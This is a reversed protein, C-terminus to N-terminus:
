AAIREDVVKLNERNQWWDRVRQKAAPISSNGQRLLNLEKIVSIKFSKGGIRLIGEMDGEGLSPMSSSETTSHPLARLYVPSEIVSQGDTTRLKRTGDKIYGQNKSLGTIDYYGTGFNYPSEGNFRQDYFGDALEVQKTQKDLREDLSHQEFLQRLEVSVAQNQNPIIPRGTQGDKGPINELPRWKGTDPNKPELLLTSGDRYTIELVSNELEYRTLEQGIQYPRFLAMKDGELHKPRYMTQMDASAVYVAAHQGRLEYRLIEAIEVGTIRNFNEQDSNELCAAAAKIKKEIRMKQQTAVLAGLSLMAERCDGIGWILAASLNTISRRDRRKGPAIGSLAIHANSLNDFALHSPDELDQLQDVGFCTRVFEELRDKLIKPDQEEALGLQEIIIRFNAEDQRNVMIDPMRGGTRGIGGPIYQPTVSGLLAFFNISSKKYAEEDSAPPAQLIAAYEPNLASPKEGGSGLRDRGQRFEEVAAEMNKIALETEPETLGTLSYREEFQHKIRTLRELTTDMKFLADATKFAKALIPKIDQLKQGNMFALELQGAHNWYDPSEEKGEKQLAIDALIKQNEILQDLKALENELEGIQRPNEGSLNKQFELRQSLLQNRKELTRIAWELSPFSSGSEKLGEFYSTTAKANEQEQKKRLELATGLPGEEIMLTNEFNENKLENIGIEGTELMAAIEGLSDAKRKHAEGRIGYVLGNGHGEAILKDCETIADNARNQRILALAYFERARPARCFDKNLDSFEEFLRIEDAPSNKLRYSNLFEFFTKASWKDKPIKQETQRLDEASGCRALAARVLSDRAVVAQSHSYEKGLDLNPNALAEFTMPQEPGPFFEFLGGELAIGAARGETTMVLNDIAGAINELQAQADKLEAGASVAELARIFKAREENADTAEAKLGALAAAFKRFVTEAEALKERPTEAELWNKNALAAENGFSERM